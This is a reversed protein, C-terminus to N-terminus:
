ERRLDRDTWGFRSVDDAAARSSARLSRAVLRAEHGKLPGGLWRVAVSGWRGPAGLLRVQFAGGTPWPAWCTEGKRAM